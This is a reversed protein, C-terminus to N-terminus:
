LFEGSLMVPRGDVGTDGRGYDAAGGVRAMDRGEDENVGMIGRERAVCGFRRADYHESARSSLSVYRVSIRVAFSAWRTKSATLRPSIGIIM